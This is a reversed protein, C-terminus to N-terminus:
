LTKSSAEITRIYLDIKYSFHPNCGTPFLCVFLSRCLLHLYNLEAIPRSKLMSDLFYFLLRRTAVFDLDADIRHISADLRLEGDMNRHCWLTIRKDRRM